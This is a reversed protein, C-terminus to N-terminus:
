DMERRCWCGSNSIGRRPDSVGVALAELVDDSDSAVLGFPRVLAGGGGEWDSM